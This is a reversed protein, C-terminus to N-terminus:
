GMKVLRRGPKKKLLWRDPGVRKRVEMPGPLRGSRVSDNWGKQMLSHWTKLSIFIYLFTLFCKFFLFQSLCAPHLFFSYLLIHQPLSAAAAFCSPLRLIRFAHERFIEWDPVLFLVVVTSYYNLFLCFFFTSFMRQNRHAKPHLSITHYRIWM